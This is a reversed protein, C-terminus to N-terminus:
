AAVENSDALVPPRPTFGALLDAPIGLQEVVARATTLHAEALEEVFRRSGSITLLRRTEDLEDVTLERGVYPRIREWEPTAQAHALLPTQKRTRLDSTVSKGTRTPDGFVGLLDDVLQFAIGMTRGAEGLRAVTRDDAGALLAGAQLPLAFSYASTKQEEM